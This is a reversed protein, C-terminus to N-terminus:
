ELTGQQTIPDYVLTGSVPQGNEAGAPISWQLVQITQALEEDLPCTENPEFLKFNGVNFYMHEANGAEAYSYEINLYSGIFEAELKGECPSGANALSAFGSLVLVLLSTKSYTM